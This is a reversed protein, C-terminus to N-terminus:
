ALASSSTKLAAVNINGAAALSLTGTGADVVVSSAMGIAGVSNLAVGGATSHVAQLLSIDGNGITALNVAGSTNIAMAPGLTQGITLLGTSQIHLNGSGGLVQAVSLPAANVLAVDGSGSHSLSVFGSLQNGSNDLMLSAAGANFVAAGALAAQVLAGTQSIGTANITLTGSGVNSAALVLARSNTLSVIGAGSSNLSVPGTLVNGSSTLRIPGAGANFTAGAAGAAQKIDGTQEIGLATLNLAGAGLNAGALTLLSQAALTVGGSGSNALSVAGVFSNLSQNLNIAFAGAALDSTGTVALAGSQDIEGDSTVQLQGTLVMAPLVVGAHDFELTLNRLAAPLAAISAAADTDRLNIDRIVGAGSNAVTIPGSWDNAMNLMVDAGSATVIFQTSAAGAAQTIVGTQTISGAASLELNGSGVSSTNLVLPATNTLQVDFAGSNALSVSGALDNGLTLLIANAGAALSTTGSVDLVGTQAITGGAQLIFNALTTLGALSIGTADVLHITGGAIGSIAAIQNTTSTLTFADAGSLELTAASISGSQTVAGSINQGVGLVLTGGAANITGLGVSAADQITIQNSSDLAGALSVAQAAGDLTITGTGADLTSGGAQTIGQATLDINNGLTATVNGDLTLEAGSVTIAVGGSTVPGNITLAVSDLLQLAGSGGGLSGLAAIRDTGGLSPLLTLAGGISGTLNALTLSTGATQTVDGTTGLSLAGNAATITGLAISAANQITVATGSSTSKLTGLLSVIGTGGDI